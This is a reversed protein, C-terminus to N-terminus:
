FPRLYFMSIDTDVNLKNVTSRIMMTRSLKSNNLVSDQEMVRLLLGVIARGIEERIEQEETIAKGTKCDVRHVELDEDLDRSPQEVDVESESGQLRLRIQHEQLAIHQKSEERTDLGFEAKILDWTDNWSPLRGALAASSLDKLTLPKKNAASSRSSTRIDSDQDSSALVKSFPNSGDAFERRRKQVDWISQFPEPGHLTLVRDLVHIAAEITATETLPSLIVAYFFSAIFDRSTISYKV